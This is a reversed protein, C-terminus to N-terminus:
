LFFRLHKKERTERKFKSDQNYPIRNFGQNYTPNRNLRSPRALEARREREYRISGANVNQQTTCEKHRALKFSQMQMQSSISSSLCLPTRRARVNLTLVVPAHTDHVGERRETEQVYKPTTQWATLGGRFEDETFM